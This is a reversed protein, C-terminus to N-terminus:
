KVKYGHAIPFRRGEGFAKSTVKLITASQRRKYEANMVRRMVDRVVGEDFGMSVIDALGRKEEIYAALIADLIDYPPLDDQDTQDAKLEASPARTIIGEPITEGGRNIYRALSYVKTKPIDALIGLGGVMDGYLTCYGAAIESKNGTALVLHGMKNSLAMLIMGRIRAQMNQETVDDERGAFHGSLASATAKFVAEISITSIHIGLNSALRLADECSERASYRSPMSIAYVNEPGLARAAIVATVASDIGGSLGIVVSRFGCKGVYDRLGLYLARLMEEDSTAPCRRMEGHGSSLDVSVLDEEFCGARALLQGGSDFAMSCGDFILSDNGGVMNVMVAPLGYKLALNGLMKERLRPKGLAYPSASINVLLDMGKAAMEAVPDRSYLREEM